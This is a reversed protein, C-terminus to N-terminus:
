CNLGQTMANFSRALVGLEDDGKVEVQTDLDGGGVALAGRTLKRVPRVIVDALMVASILALLVFVVALMLVKVTTDEMVQQIKAQSMAIYARGVTVGAKTVPFDFAFVKDGNEPDTSELVRVDAPVAESELAVGQLPRWSAGVDVPPRGSAARIALVVGQDDTLVAHVMADDSLADKTFQIAQLSDKQLVASASYDALNRGVILGRRIAEQLLAQRCEWLTFVALLALSLTVLGALTAALKTRISLGKPGELVQGLLVGGLDDAM